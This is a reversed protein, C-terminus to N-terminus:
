MLSVNYTYKIKKRYMRGFSGKQGFLGNHNFGYIGYNGFITCLTQNKWQSSIWNQYKAKTQFIILLTDFMEFFHLKM